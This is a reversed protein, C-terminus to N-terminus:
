SVPWFFSRLSKWKKRCMKDSKVKVLEVKEECFKLKM